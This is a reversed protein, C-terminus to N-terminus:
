ITGCRSYFSKIERKIPKYFLYPKVLIRLSKKRRKYGPEPDPLGNESTGTGYFPYGRTSASALLVLKKVHEPYDASYQMSVGGGTSWGVLTFDRLQLADVFLKLDDSFEKLSNIPQHYTSSGFGRLDLAYLKYEEPMQELLIDWHKSSTMNGHVLVVLEHGGERERYGLTEGNPLEVKKLYVQAM